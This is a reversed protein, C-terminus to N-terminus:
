FSSEGCRWRRRELCLISVSMPPIDLGQRWKEADARKMARSPLFLRSSACARLFEPQEEDRAEEGAETM